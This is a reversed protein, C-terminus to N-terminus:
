TDVQAIWISKPNRFYYMFNSGMFLSLYVPNHSLKSYAFDGYVETMANIAEDTSGVIDLTAPVYELGVANGFWRGLDPTIVATKLPIFPQTTGTNDVYTGGVFHFVFGELEFTDGTFMENVPRIGTYYAKINTNERIWGKNKANLWIHKPPEVNEEEAAVRIDDLQKIIDTAPLDWDATILNGSGNYNLRTKHGSPVGLDITIEPTTSNEQIMGNKDLYVIGVTLAQKLFVQRMVLHKTSFDSVQRNVETIGKRQLVWNEPERIARLSDMGLQLENFVHALTMSRSDLGTPQLVRAPSGRKSLPAQTKQRGVFVWELTDADFREVSGNGASSIVPVDRAMGTDEIISMAEANAASTAAGVYYDFMANPSTNRGFEEYITGLARYDLIQRIENFTGM